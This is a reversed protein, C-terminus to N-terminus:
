KAGRMLINQEIRLLLDNWIPRGADHRVKLHELVSVFQQSFDQYDTVKPLKSTYELLSATLESDQKM